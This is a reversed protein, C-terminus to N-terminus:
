CFGIKDLLKVYEPKLKNRKKEFRKRSVWEGLAKNVSYKKPVLTNGYFNKYEILSGYHTYFSKYKRKRKLLIKENVVVSNTPVTNMPATNITITHHGFVNPIQSM